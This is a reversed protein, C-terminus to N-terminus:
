DYNSPAFGIAKAEQYYTTKGTFSGTKNLRAAAEANRNIRFSKPKIRASAFRPVGNSMLVISM